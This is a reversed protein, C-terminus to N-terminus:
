IKTTFGINIEIFDAVGIPLVKVTEVVKNTSLVNQAPDITVSYASIEGNQIMVDLAMNALSEFYAVTSDTMTGNSNLVIPSSLAPITSVRITRIAKDITRNNYIYHYDSTPLSCTNPQNNYSGTFGTFKRLFCYGYDSLSALESEPTVNYNVGNSFAITDLEVGDSMPFKSVWAWSENVKANSLAGLKAGADTISKATTKWLYYGQSAGDQSIVVSVKPSSLGVLTTLAALTATGSIEAAFLISSIPMKDTESLTIKTQLKPVITAITTSAFAHYVLMQRIKGDAFDRVSTIEDYNTSPSAYIGIYLNGNPKLRFYESVHYHFVAIKSAVGAVVAQTVTVALTAGSSLDVVLPTGTNPWVGLGTRYTVTVTATSVSASYGTLLTNANIAAAIATAVNAATSDGSVKTYSGLTIYSGSPELFKITAVDGNAGAASVLITGTGQTEDGGGIALIGLSEAQTLSFVQKIRNSSDFGSPLTGTYFIMASIHDEGAPPRGLGGQGVNFTIDPIGSM